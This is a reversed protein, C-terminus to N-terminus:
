SSAIVLKGVPSSPKEPKKEGDAVPAGATPKSRANNKEDTVGILPLVFVDRRAVLNQFRCIADIRKRYKDLLREPNL